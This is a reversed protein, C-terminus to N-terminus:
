PDQARRRPGFATSPVIDFAVSIREDESGTPTTGHLFYAPMLLLTGRKPEVLREDWGSDPGLGYDEPVGLGLWGRRSGPEESVAPQKVYYVASLWARPHLHAHLYGETRSVVAWADLRFSRPRSAVFPHGADDPLEAMYRDVEDHVIGALAQCAPSRQDLVHNNRWSLRTALHAETDEGDYFRLDSKIEASLAADFDAGEFGAPPAVPRRRCFRDYDVLRRAGAVDGLMAAAIARSAIVPSVIVGHDLLSQARDCLRRGDTGPRPVFVSGDPDAAFADRFVEAAERADGRAWLAESLQYLLAPRSSRSVAQRLLAVVADHRGLAGHDMEDASDDM